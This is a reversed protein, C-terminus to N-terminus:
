SRIERIAYFRSRDVYRFPFYHLLDLYTRVEIEEKLVEARKPGVGTLYTIKTSLMDM